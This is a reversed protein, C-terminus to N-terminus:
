ISTVEKLQDARSGADLEDLVQRYHSLRLGLRIAAYLFESHAEQAAKLLLEAGRREEHGAHLARSFRESAADHWDRAMSALQEVLPLAEEYWDTIEQYARREAASADLAVTM